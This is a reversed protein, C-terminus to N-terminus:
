KIALYDITAPHARGRSRVLHFRSSKKHRVRALFVLCTEKTLLNEDFHQVSERKPCRLVRPIGMQEELIQYRNQRLLVVRRGFCRHLPLDQLAPESQQYANVINM